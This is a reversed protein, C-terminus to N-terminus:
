VPKLLASVNKYEDKNLPSLAKLLLFRGLILATKENKKVAKSDESLEEINKILDLRNIKNEYARALIQLLSCANLKIGIDTSM